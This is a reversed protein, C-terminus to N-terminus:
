DENKFPCSLKRKSSFFGKAGFSFDERKETAKLFRSGTLSITYDVLLMGLAQQRKKPLLIVLQHARDIKIM